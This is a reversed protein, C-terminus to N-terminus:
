PEGRPVEPRLLACHVCRLGYTRELRKLARKLQYDAQELPLRSELHLVYRVRNASM